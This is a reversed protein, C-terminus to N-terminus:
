QVAEKRQKASLQTWVGSYLINDLIGQHQKIPLLQYCAIAEAMLVRLIGEHEASPIMVLPNYREKKLDDRLDMVADMLYIFRGLTYGFARLPQAAHMEEDPVFIEQLLSGFAKAPLDPETVGEEEMQSLDSLSKRIAGYQRVYREALAEAGKGMMKAQALSLLKRDDRWDDMRQAHALLLNMDAAYPTYRSAASQRRKLPHAPCSFSVYDMREDTLGSLLLILFTMDYTLTARCLQGHRNGLARCLGCYCARYLNKEEDTLKDLNAVVYGFM